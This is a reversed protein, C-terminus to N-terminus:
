TVVNAHMERARVMESGRHGGEFNLGGKMEFIAALSFSLNPTSSLKATFCANRGKKLPPLRSQPMGCHLSHTPFKPAAQVLAQHCDGFHEM